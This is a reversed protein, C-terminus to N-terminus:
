DWWKGMSDFRKGSLNIYHMASKIDTQGLYDKVLLPDGTKSALKFACTHRFMHPHIPLDLNAKIGLRKILVFLTNRDYPTKRMTIFVEKLATDRNKYLKRLVKVEDSELPHNQELGGKVRKIHIRALQLDLDQWTLNCLEEARLGHRFLLLVIAFDRDSNRSQKAARLVANLELDTLYERQRVEDNKPRGPSLGKSM